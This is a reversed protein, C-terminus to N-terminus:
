YLYDLLYLNSGILFGVSGALLLYPLLIKYFVKPASYTLIIKHVKSYNKLTLTSGRLTM